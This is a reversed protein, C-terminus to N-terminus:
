NKGDKIVKLQEETLIRKSKTEKEKSPLKYNEVLKEMWKETSKSM